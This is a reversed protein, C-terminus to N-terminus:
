DQENETLITHIQDLIDEVLLVTTPHLIIYQHKEYWDFIDFLNGSRFSFSWWDCIMELVYIKPIELPKFKATGGDDDAYVWYQWHHPNHKMHHNWAYNFNNVVEYSRNRSYFYKDYADYEEKSYKSNDHNKIVELFENVDVDNFIPLHDIMWDAAQQVAKKHEFIYNDYEHSMDNGKKFSNLNVIQFM